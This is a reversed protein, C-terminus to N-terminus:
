DESDFSEFPDATNDDPLTAGSDQEVFASRFLAPVQQVAGEYTALDIREYQLMDNLIKHIRSEAFHTLNKQQFSASYKKPNPLLMALFASEAANLDSAPKKFYHWSAPEIGYLNNGYEIVNLYKELIENKSLDKELKITILGELFKRLLTKEKALFLNKALQQSITSGGRIYHGKELNERASKEISKWDFGRHQFFGSDETLIVTKKFVSSIRNLPVYNKSRPCLEVHNMTSTICGQLEKTTPIKSYVYFVMALVLIPGILVIGIIFKVSGHITM